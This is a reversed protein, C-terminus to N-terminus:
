NSGDTFASGYTEARTWGHKSLPRHDAAGTRQARSRALSAPCRRSARLVHAVAFPGEELGPLSRMAAEPHNDPASVAFSDSDAYRQSILQLLVFFRSVTSYTDVRSCSCSRSCNSYFELTLDKCIIYMCTYM